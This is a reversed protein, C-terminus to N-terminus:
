DTIVAKTPSETKPVTQQRDVAPNLSAAWRVGSLMLENPGGEVEPHPSFCIVRGRGFKSRIIAHTGVMSGVQAGKEAVESGYTALVQYGPLTPKNDPVLLPGQAYYVDVVEIGSVLETRAADSLLLSVDGQGRAWHSRDWVKANIISLSWDYHSSALYAGACIGVYGGGTRVFQRVREKGSDGLDNAQASGSGGPMILVDFDELAGARIDAALVRKADFGNDRTLFRMLNKPGKAFRTDSREYIAVRKTNFDPHAPRELSLAAQKMDSLEKQMAKMAKQSQEIHFETMESPAPPQKRWAELASTTDAVIEDEVPWVDNWIGPLHNTRIQGAKGALTWERLTIAVEGLEGGNPDTLPDAVEDMSAWSPVAISFKPDGLLTWMTTLAADEGAKVGHIITASVTSVRSITRESSISDPLPGPRGNVTGPYAVGNADSMDRTMNRLMYAVSIKSESRAELRRCAHLFRKSSYLDGLSEPKPTAGLSQATTAFNTRVIYGNPAVKPDNADFMVFSKPGSEFIAAGGHADIVGFNATTTRGTTNTEELLKRFDEVTECTQLALKMFLGNSPGKTKEDIRLDKSLSNEICFGVENVGMMTSKRSGANVVGIVRYKGDDFIVVENHRNSTDRNKWLIPRGDNTARGSIVATTCASVPTQVFSTAASAVVLFHLLILRRQSGFYAKM